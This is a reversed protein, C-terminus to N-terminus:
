ARFMAYEFSWFLSPL